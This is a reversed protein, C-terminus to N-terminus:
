AIIGGEPWRGNCFVRAYSYANTRDKAIANEGEPWRGQVVDRAYDYACQPNQM